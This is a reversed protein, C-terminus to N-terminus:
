KFSFYNINLFDIGAKLSFEEDISSDGIYVIENYFRRKEWFLFSSEDPKPKFASAYIVDDPLNFSEWKIQGIKNCQQQLNGNTLVSYPISVEKLAKLIIKAETKLKLGDSVTINRLIELCDNCTITLNFNLIFKDFLGERGNKNFNDILFDRFELYRSQNTSFNCAIKDYAEFLYDKENILTDDLDFLVYDYLFVTNNVKFSRRM